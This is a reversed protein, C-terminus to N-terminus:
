ILTKTLISSFTNKKQLFWSVSSNKRNKNKKVSSFTNLSTGQSHFHVNKENRENRTRSCGKENMNKFDNLFISKTRERFKRENEM